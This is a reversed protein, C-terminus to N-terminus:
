EAPQAPGTNGTPESPEEKKDPDVQVVKLKTDSPVEKTVITGDENKQLILMDRPTLVKATAGTHDVLIVDIGSWNSTVSLEGTKINVELVVERKRGRTSRAM